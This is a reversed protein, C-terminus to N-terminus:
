SHGCRNRSFDAGPRNSLYLLPSAGHHGASSVGYGDEVVIAANESQVVTAGVHSERQVPAANFVSDQGAVPM